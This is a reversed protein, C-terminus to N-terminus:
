RILLIPTTALPLLKVFSSFASKATSGNVLIVDGGQVEPDESKGNRIDDIDYRAATRVGGATHFVVVDSSATDTDLGEAMAISRQLTDHGRLSYVGPKKVAGDITIRQSNYEKVYVTVHPSKLYKAGLRAELNREIEAATKGAVVTEGVLPFNITGAEAVQVSKSLDPVQFVSIELVDQPGIRYGNNGPTSSAMYKDAARTLEVKDPVSLSRDGSARQEHLSYTADSLSSSCGGLYGACAVLLATSFIRTTGLAALGLAERAMPWRGQWNQVFSSVTAGPIPLCSPSLNALIAQPRTVVLHEAEAAGVRRAALERGNGLDPPRTTMDHADSALLHVCGEELMREAWYQAARGFMGSLSGSTIQMWVGRRALQQISSYRSKIWTLREPHTLIPVYGATVLEFFFEEMRPPAAHQPVEVLIYRSDALPLLRGSRLGLIFDQVIHNDAGTVLRLPINESDLVRQLTQVAQRIQPGTCHYLGPLIHPTCAVTTVDGGVLRRAMQLSVAIDAAGDDLGPLIHSHLDIM